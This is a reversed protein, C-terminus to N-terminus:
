ARIASIIAPNTASITDTFILAFRCRAARRPWRLQIGYLNSAGSSMAVRVVRGITKQFLCVRAEVRFRQVTLRLHCVAVKPTQLLCLRRLSRCRQNGVSPDNACPRAGINQSTSCRKGIIRGGPEVLELNSKTVAGPCAGKLVYGLAAAHYVAHLNPNGVELGLRGGIPDCHLVRKRYPNGTIRRLRGKQIGSLRKVHEAPVHALLHCHGGKNPGNQHVWLWATKTGLRRLAKTMIDNFQGTAKAIGDLPVGAAEWHITIMRTCPLGIASAHGAGAILNGIHAISLAHTIRDARDRAGGRGTGNSPLLAAM